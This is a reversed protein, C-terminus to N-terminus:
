RTKPPEETSEAPSWHWVGGEFRYEGFTYGPTAPVVGVVIKRSFTEIPVTFTTQPHALDKGHWPGRECRGFNMPVGM